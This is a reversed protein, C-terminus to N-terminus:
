YLNIPTVITLLWRNMSLSGLVGLMAVTLTILGSLILILAGSAIRDGTILSLSNDTAILYVGVSSLM